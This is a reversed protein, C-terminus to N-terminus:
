KSSTSGNSARGNSDGFCKAFRVGFGVTRQLNPDRLAKLLGILGIRDSTRQECTERQCRALSTAAHGVVELANPDLVDSRLLYGLRELEDESVRCGLWLLAHLGQSISKELEVGQSKLNAAFEDVLDTVVALLNPVEDLLRSAEELQPLRDILRSLASVTEPETVKLFLNVLSGLREDVSTGSQNIKECQEDIVDAVTAFLGDAANNAYVAREILHEVDKARGILRSLSEATEPDSMQERIPMDEIKTEM